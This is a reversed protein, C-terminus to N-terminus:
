HSLRRKRGLAVLGFPVSILAFLLGVLFLMRSLDLLSHTTPTDFPLVLPVIMACLTICVLSLAPFIRTWWPQFLSITRLAGGFLCAFALVEGGTLVASVIDPIRGVTVSLVAYVVLLVVLLLFGGVTFIVQTRDLAGIEALVRRLRSPHSASPPPFAPPDAPNTM